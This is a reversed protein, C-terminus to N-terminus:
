EVEAGGLLELQVILMRKYNMWDCREYAEDAREKANFLEVVKQEESSM